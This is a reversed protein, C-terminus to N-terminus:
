AKGDDDGDSEDTNMPKGKSDEEAEAAEDASNDEDDSSQAKRKKRRYTRKSPATTDEDFYGALQSVAQTGAAWWFLTVLRGGTQNTGAYFLALGLLNVIDAAIFVPSIIAGVICAFSGLVLIDKNQYQMLRPMGKDALVADLSARAKDSIPDNPGQGGFKKSIAPARMKKPLRPGIVEGPVMLARSVIKAKIKMQEDTKVFEANMGAYAAISVPTLNARNIGTGHGFAEGFNGRSFVCLSFAVACLWRVIRAVKAVTQSSRKAGDGSSKKDLKSKKEQVGTRRTLQPGARCCNLRKVKHKEKRFPKGQQSAAVAAEARRKEAGTGKKEKKASVM